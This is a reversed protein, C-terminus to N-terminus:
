NKGGRLADRKRVGPHHSEGRIGSPLHGTGVRRLNNFGGPKEPYMRTRGGTKGRSRPGGPTEAGM